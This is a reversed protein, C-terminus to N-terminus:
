IELVTRDLHSICKGHKWINGIYSMVFARLEVSLKIYDTLSSSINMCQYGYLKLMYKFTCYATKRTLSIVWWCHWESPAIFGDNNDSCKLM